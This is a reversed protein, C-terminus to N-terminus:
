SFSIDEGDKLLLETNIAFESADSIAITDEGNEALFMFNKQLM